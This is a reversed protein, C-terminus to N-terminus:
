SYHRCIRFNFNSCSPQSIAAWVNMHPPMILEIEGENNVDGDLSIKAYYIGGDSIACCCMLIM